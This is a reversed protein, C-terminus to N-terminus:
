ASYDIATSSSDSMAASFQHDGERSPIGSSSVSLM